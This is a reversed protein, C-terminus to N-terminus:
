GAPAVVEVEVGGGVNSGCCEASTDGSGIGDPLLQLKEKLGSCCRGDKTLGLSESSSTASLLRTLKSPPRDDGGGGGM